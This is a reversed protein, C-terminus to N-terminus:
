EQEQVQDERSDQMVSTGDGTAEKMVSTGDGTAEEDSKMNM